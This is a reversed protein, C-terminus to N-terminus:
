RKIEVLPYFNDAVQVKGMANSPLFNKKLFIM